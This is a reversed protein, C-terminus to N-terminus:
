GLAALVLPVEVIRERLRGAPPSLKDALAGARKKLTRSWKGQEVTFAGELLGLDKAAYIYHEDHKVYLRVICSTARM